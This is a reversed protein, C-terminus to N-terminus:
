SLEYKLSRLSKIKWETLHKSLYKFLSFSHDKKKKTHTPQEEKQAPQEKKKKGKKTVMTVMELSCVIYM